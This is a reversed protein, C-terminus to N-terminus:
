AWCDVRGRSPDHGPGFRPLMWSEQETAVRQATQQPLPWFPERGHAGRYHGMLSEIRERHLRRALMLDAWTPQDILNGLRIM